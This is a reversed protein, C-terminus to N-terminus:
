DGITEYNCHNLEWHHYSPSLDDRILQKLQLGFKEGTEDMIRFEEDGDRRKRANQLLLLSISRAEVDTLEVVYTPKLTTKM